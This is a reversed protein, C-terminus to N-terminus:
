VPRRLCLSDGKSTMVLSKHPVVQPRPRDFREKLLTSLLLGGLTAALLLALAHYKQSILLYGSVAATVLCLAAIGGVATLDRAVEGLWPPGLTRSPAAPDRPMRLLREDINQTVGASVGIAVTIFGCTGLVIALLALLVVFDMHGSQGFLKHSSTTMM